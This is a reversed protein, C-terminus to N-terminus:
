MCVYKPLVHMCVYMCVYMHVYMCVCRRVYMCVYAYVRYRPPRWHCFTVFQWLLLVKYLIILFRLLYGSAFLCPDGRRNWLSSLCVARSLSCFLAESQTLKTEFVPNRFYTAILLVEV